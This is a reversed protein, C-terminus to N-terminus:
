DSWAILAKLANKAVVIIFLSYRLHSHSIVSFLLLISVVYKVSMMRLFNLEPVANEPLALIFLFYSYLIIVAITIGMFQIIKDALRQSKGSQKLLQVFLEEILKLNNFANM